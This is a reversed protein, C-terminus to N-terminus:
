EQEFYKDISTNLASFQFNKQPFVGMGGSLPVDSFHYLYLSYIKSASMTGHFKFIHSVDPRLSFGQSASAQHVVRGLVCELRGRRRVSIKHVINFTYYICM